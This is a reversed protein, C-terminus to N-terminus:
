VGRGAPHKSVQSHSSTRSRTRGAAGSRPPAPACAFRVSVLKSVAQEEMTVGYLQDAIEMTKPSHTRYESPAAHPATSCDLLPRARGPISRTGTTTSSGPSAPKPECCTPPSPQGRPMAKARSCSPSARTRRGTSSSALTTGFGHEQPLLGTLMTLQPPLTMPCPSYANQYLIADRRFRDLNPTRVGRYGYAPLRDARLTDISILVVPARPFVSPSSDGRCAGLPSALTLRAVLRVSRRM